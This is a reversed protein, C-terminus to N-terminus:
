LRPRSSRPRDQDRERGNRQEQQGGLGRGRGVRARRARVLQPRQEGLGNAEVLGAVEVGGRVGVSAEQLLLGAVDLRERVETRDEGGLSAVLIRDRSVTFGEGHIRV